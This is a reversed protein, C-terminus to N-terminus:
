HCKVREPPQIFNRPGLYKFQKLLMFSLVMAGAYILVVSEVSWDWWIPAHMLIMYTLVFPASFLAQVGLELAVPTEFEPDAIRLLLLGTSVNGTACGYIGVTRELSYSWTRNGIWVVVITTLIGSAASIVIIPVIYEWVIVVQIAIITSIILFDISWGTIRRQVGPDLLYGLGLKNILFKVLLAIVVGFFFFFAWLSKAVNVSIFNGIGLMLLYTLLYVLGVLAAHFAMTDINGSHTTLVGAPEKQADKAIIGKLIEPSLSKPSKASFGKRIGWNVLPVGVFFAFAFGFVAFSLGLTAAHEFGFEEWVKGISLAQGPGQTFGLPSLFGFTPYLNYGIYNFLFVFLAGVIGQMSMTIGQVCAMWFSGKVPNHESHNTNGRTGATLGLSIFSIIFLHYAFTELLSTSVAVLGTSILILGITGGIFCSPILYRQFFKVSARLFMGLLLMVAMFGFALLAEFPFPTEM